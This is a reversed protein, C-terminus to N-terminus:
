PKCQSKVPPEGASLMDLIKPTDGLAAPQASGLAVAFAIVAPKFIRQHM